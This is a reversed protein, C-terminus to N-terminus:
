KPFNDAYIGGGNKLAENNTFNFNEFNKLNYNGQLAM